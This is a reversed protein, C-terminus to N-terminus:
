QIAITRTIKKAKETKPLMLRLIGDEYKATVNGADVADNLRFSRSFAQYRYERQIYDDKSGNKEETNEYSVTLMDNSMQINLKDKQIGPAVMEIEYSNDTERINVPVQSRSNIGNFGWFSDDFFRSLNNQFIQDVVSGFSAPSSGNEKKMINAM